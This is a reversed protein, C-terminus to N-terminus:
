RRNTNAVIKQHCAYPSVAKLIGTNGKSDTHRIQGELVLTVTEFGRHPHDPFGAPPKVWDEAMMLFPDFESFHGPMLVIANSHYKDTSGRVANFVRGIKRFLSM